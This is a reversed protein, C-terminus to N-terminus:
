DLFYHIPKKYFEAFKKLEIVDIRQEGAEVKSLYSQPKRLKKAVDVQTLGIDLRATKLKEATHQYEQSYALKIM